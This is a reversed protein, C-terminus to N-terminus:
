GPRQHQAHDDQRQSVHANDLQDLFSEICRGVLEATTNQSPNEGPAHAPQVCVRQALLLWAPQRLAKLCQARSVELRQEATLPTSM